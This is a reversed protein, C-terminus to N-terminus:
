TKGREAPRITDNAEQFKKQNELFIERAGSLAQLEEATAPTQGDVRNRLTESLQNLTQQSSQTSTQLISQVQRRDAIRTELDQEKENLDDRQNELAVDVHRRRVETYDPGPIRGIDSVLFGISWIFLFTLVVSFFGILFRLKKPRESSLNNSM